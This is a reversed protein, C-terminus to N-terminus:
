KRALGPAKGADPKQTHATYPNSTFKPLFFNDHKAITLQISNKRLALGMLRNCM